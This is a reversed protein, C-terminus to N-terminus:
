QRISFHLMFLVIVLFGDNMGRRPVGANWIPLDHANTYLVRRRGSGREDYVAARECPRIYDQRFDPIKEHTSSSLLSTIYRQRIKTIETGRGEKTASTM